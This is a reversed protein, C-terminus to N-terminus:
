EYQLFGEGLVERADTVVVFAQGDIRHVIDKLFVIQKRPVVCFLMIKDKGSYGGRILIKTMGRQLEEMVASTVAEHKETIIFAAKSFKLGEIISDSVKATFFIAIASYLVMSFGFVFAGLIVIACDIIQMIKTVPYWPIKKQILVAAMDSGGTTGRGMFALGIGAGQIVGGYFAALLLDEKVLPIEPLILLWVSLSIMGVLSRKLFHFGKLWFAALFLPINLVLMTVGLPIGTLEKVVIALGSFGGTVMGLPDFVSNISVAMVATGLVILVYDNKKM